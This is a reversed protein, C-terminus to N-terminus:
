FLFFFFFFIPCRRSQRQNLPILRKSHISPSASDRINQSGNAVPVGDKRSELSVYMCVYMCVHEPTTFRIKLM